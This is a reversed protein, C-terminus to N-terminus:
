QYFKGLGEIMYTHVIHLIRLIGHLVFVIGQGLGANKGAVTVVVGKGVGFFSTRGRRRQM